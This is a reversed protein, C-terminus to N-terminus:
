KKRRLPSGGTDHGYDPPHAVGGKRGRGRRIKDLKEMAACRIWDSFTWIEDVTRSNREALAVEIDAILAPDLRVKRIPRGKSV